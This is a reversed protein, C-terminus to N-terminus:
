VRKHTECFDTDLIVRADNVDGIWQEICHCSYFKCHRHMSVDDLGENYRRVDYKIRKMHSRFNARIFPREKHEIYELRGRTLSHTYVPVYSGTNKRKKIRNKRPSFLDVQQSIATDTM